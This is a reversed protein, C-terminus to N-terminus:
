HCHTSQTHAVAVVALDDTLLSSPSSVTVVPIPSGVATPDVCSLALTADPNTTVRLIGNTVGTVLLAGDAM